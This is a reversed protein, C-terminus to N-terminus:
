GADGGHSRIWAAVLQEQEKGTAKTVTISDGGLTLTVSGGDHRGLWGQVVSVVQRLAGSRAFSVLLTGWSLVDVGKAGPPAEGSAAVEVVEVDTELLHHRLQRTLSALEDADVDGGPAMTLTLQGGQDAM